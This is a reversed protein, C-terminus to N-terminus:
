ANEIHRQTRSYDLADHTNSRVNWYLITKKVLLKKVGSYDGDAVAIKVMGTIVDLKHPMSKIPALTECVATDYALSDIIEVLEAKNLMLWDKAMHRTLYLTPDIITRLEAVVDLYSDVDEQLVRKNAVIVLGLLKLIHKWNSPSFAPVTTSSKDVSHTNHSLM